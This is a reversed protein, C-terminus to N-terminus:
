RGQGRTELVIANSLIRSQDKTMDTFRVALYCTTSDSHSEDIHCRVNEVTASVSFLDTIEIKLELSEERSVLEQCRILAGGLSIDKIEGTIVKKGTLM